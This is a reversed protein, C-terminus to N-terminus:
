CSCVVTAFCFNFVKAPSIQVSLEYSIDKSLFDFFYHKLTCSRHSFIGGYRTIAMSYQLILPQVDTRDRERLRCQCLDATLQVMLPVVGRARWAGVRGLGEEVLASKSSYLWNYVTEWEGACLWPQGADVASTRVSNYSSRGAGRRIEKRTVM